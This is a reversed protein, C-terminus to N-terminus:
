HYVPINPLANLDAQTADRVERIRVQVRLTKGAMPHNGDITLYGNAIRTVVFHGIDGEENQMQMAAGVYRLEEPVNNIDDTFTLNPDYPGFGLEPPVIIEVADGVKKGLVAEEMDGILAQPGGCVYGIPLDNYELTNGERDYITYTLAVFKGPQIIEM